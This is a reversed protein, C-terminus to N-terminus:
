HHLNCWLHSSKCWLHSSKCWLHSSKCWLHSVDTEFILAVADIICIKWWVTNSKWYNVIRDRILFESENGSCFNKKIEKWRFFFILKRGNKERKHNWEDKMCSLVYQFAWLLEHWTRHIFLMCHWNVIKRRHKCIDEIM